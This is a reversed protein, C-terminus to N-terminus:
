SGLMGRVSDIWPEYMPLLVGREKLGELISLAQRLIARGNEPDLTRGAGAFRCWSIPRTTLAIPNTGPWDSESASLERTSPRPRRARGEGFLSLTGYGLKESEFGLHLVFEDSQSSDVFAEGAAQLGLRRRVCFARAAM